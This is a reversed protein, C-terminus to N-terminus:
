CLLQVSDGVNWLHVAARYEQNPLIDECKGYDIGNIKFRLEKDVFDVVMEVTDGPKFGPCDNYNERSGQNFVKIGSNSLGVSEPQALIFDKRLAPKVSGNICCIGITQHWNVSPQMKLIKFRYHHIGGDIVDLFATATPQTAEIINENSILKIRDTPYSNPDWEHKKFYYRLCLIIIDVPFNTDTKIGLREKHVYGFVLSSVKRGRSTERLKQLFQTM